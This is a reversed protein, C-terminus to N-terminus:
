GCLGQGLGLPDAVGLREEGRDAGVDPVTAVAGAVHGAQVLDPHRPELREAIRNGEVGGEGMLRGM